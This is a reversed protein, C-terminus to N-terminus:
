FTLDVGLAVIQNERDYNNVGYAEKDGKWEYYFSHFYGANVTLWETAHFAVGGGYSNADVNMNMETLYKNSVGIRSFQAGASLTLQKIVDWEFGALLENTSELYKDGGNAYSAAADFFKHYGLAGRVGEVFEFQMGLSLYSPMDADTKVGDAYNPFSAALQKPMHKTDNEIEMRTRYEFKAAATLRKYRVNLSIIPTIGYGSQDVDLNAEGMGLASLDADVTYNNSAYNFRAGVYGSIYDNFRYAGGLTFGYIYSTGELEASGGLDSLLKGQTLPLLDKSLTFADFMPLGDDYEVTGGGGAITFAGSVTVNGHHWAALFSPMCPVFVEGEYEKEAKTAFTTSIIRKQWITQSNLSINWTKQFETTGAPNTYIADVATSADRAIGRIFHASQNTNHTLGGAFGPAVAAMSVIATALASKTNFKM